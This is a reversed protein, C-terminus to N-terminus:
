GIEKFVGINHHMIRNVVAQELGRTFIRIRLKPGTSDDFGAEPDAVPTIMKSPKGPTGYM